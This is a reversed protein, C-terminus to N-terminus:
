VTLHIASNLVATLLFILVSSGDIIKSQNIFCVGFSEQDSSYKTFTLIVIENVTDWVCVLSLSRYVGIDSCYASM